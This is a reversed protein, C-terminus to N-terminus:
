YGITIDGVLEVRDECVFAGHCIKPRSLLILLNKLIKSIGALINQIPLYVISSVLGILCYWSYYSWLLIFSYILIIVLKLTWVCERSDLRKLFNQMKFQKEVLKNSKHLM